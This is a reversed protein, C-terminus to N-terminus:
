GVGRPGVGLHSGLMRAYVRAVWRQFEDVTMRQKAWNCTRCCPVANALTYGATNDLRDLGNYTFASPKGRKMINGPEAGCYHCDQAAIALLQGRTLEFALGRKVAWKRYNCFVIGAGSRSGM